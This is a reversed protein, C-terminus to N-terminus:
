YYLRIFPSSCVGGARGGRQQQYGPRGGRGRFEMPPWGPSFRFHKYKNYLILFRKFIFVYGSGDFNPPAVMNPPHPFPGFPFPFNAPGGWRDHGPHPQLPPPPGGRHFGRRGREYNSPSFCLNSNFSSFLFAM